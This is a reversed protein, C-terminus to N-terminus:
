RGSPVHSCLELGRRFVDYYRHRLGSTLNRAGRRLREVAVGDERAKDLIWRELGRADNAPAPKPFGPM